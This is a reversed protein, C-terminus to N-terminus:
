DYTKGGDSIASLVLGRCRSVSVGLCRTGIKVSPNSHYPNQFEKFLSTVSPTLSTSLKGM